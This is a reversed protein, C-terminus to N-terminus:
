VAVPHGPHPVATGPIVTPKGNINVVSVPPAEAYGGVPLTYDGGSAPTYKGQGALYAAVAAMAQNLKDQESMVMTQYGSIGQRIANIMAQTRNYAEQQYQQNLAGATAGTAGSELAGRARMKYTLDAMGGALARQLQAKDSFQNAAAAAKTAPDIDGVYNWLDQPANTGLDYGSQVAAARIAQALSTRGMAVNAQFAQQAASFTPDAMLMNKLEAPSYAEMHAAVTPTSLEPITITTPDWQPLQDGLSSVDYTGRPLKKGPASTKGLGALTRVPAGGPVASYAPM